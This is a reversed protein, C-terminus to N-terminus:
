QEWRAIADMATLEPVITNSHKGTTAHAVVRIFAWHVLRKPLRWALWMSIVEGWGSHRTREKLHTHKREDFDRHNITMPGNEGVIEITRLRMELDERLQEHM